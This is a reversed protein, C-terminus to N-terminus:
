LEFKRNTYYESIAEKMIAYTVKPRSGNAREIAIEAARDRILNILGQRVAPKDIDLLLKKAEVIAVVEKEAKENYEIDPEILDIMDDLLVSLAKLDEPTDVFINWNIDSVSTAMKEDYKLGGCLVQSSRRALRTLEKFALKENEEPSPEEAKVDQSVAKKAIKDLEKDVLKRLREGKLDKAVKVYKKQAEKPLRNVEFAASMSINGDIINVQILEEMDLLSLYRKISQESMNLKKSVNPVSSRYNSMLKRISKAIDIPNMNEREINEIICIEFMNKEDIVNHDYVMAPIVTLNALKAAEFRRQGAFGTYGGNGDDMVLIPQKVGHTLISEKLNDLDGLDSRANFLENWKVKEVKVIQYNNM